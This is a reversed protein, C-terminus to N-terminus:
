IEKLIGVAFTFNHAFVHLGTKHLCDRLSRKSLYCIFCRRIMVTQNRNRDELMFVQTDSLGYQQEPSSAFATILATLIRRYASSYYFM